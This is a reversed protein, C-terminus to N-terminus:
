IGKKNFGKRRKGFNYNEYDYRRENYLIKERRQKNM